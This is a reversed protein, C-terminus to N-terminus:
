QVTISTETAWGPAVLPLDPTGAIAKGRMHKDEKGLRLKADTHRETSDGNRSMYSEPCELTLDREGNRTNTKRTAMVRCMYSSVSHIFVSRMRHFLLM